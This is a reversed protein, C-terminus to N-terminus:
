TGPDGSTLHATVGRVVVSTGMCSVAVMSGRMGWTAVSTGSACRAIYASELDAARLPSGSVVLNRTWRRALWILPQLKQASICERSSSSAPSALSRM